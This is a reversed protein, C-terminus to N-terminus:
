DAVNRITEPSYERQQVKRYIGPELTIAAHEEHVLESTEEVDILMDGQWQYRTAHKTSIAHAHGTAEGLALVIRGDDEQRVAEPPLNDMKELLVDGQRYQKPTTAQEM